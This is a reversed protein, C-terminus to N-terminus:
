AQPLGFLFSETQKTLFERAQAQRVDLAYHNIIATQERLWETWCVQCINDFIRDGLDGPLPPSSLQSRTEGCRVCTIDGM